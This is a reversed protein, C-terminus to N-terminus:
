PHRAMATKLELNAQFIQQMLTRKTDLAEEETSLGQVGRYMSAVGLDIEKMAAIRILDAETRELQQTLKVIRRELIDIKRQAAGDMAGPTPLEYVPVDEHAPQVGNAAPPAGQGVSATPALERQPEARPRAPENQVAQRFLRDVRGHGLWSEPRYANFIAGLVPTGSAILIDHAREAHQRQTLRARLVLVVADVRRLLLRSEVHELLPPTDLVLMRGREALRALVASMRETTLEGPVPARPTGAHLVLLGPCDRPERLCDDLEARGDLVDSLGPAELGLYGALAPRRLNTELLCVPLRQHQALGIATAAALVSTGARAEPATFLVSTPGDHAALRTVTAWVVDAIGPLEELLRLASPPGPRGHEPRDHAPRDHALM